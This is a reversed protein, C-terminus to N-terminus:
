SGRVQRNGQTLVRWLRVLAGDAMLPGALRDPWGLKDPLQLEGVM